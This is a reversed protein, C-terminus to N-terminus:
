RRSLTAVSVTRVDTSLSMKKIVHSIGSKGDKHM